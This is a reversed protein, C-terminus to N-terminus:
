TVNPFPPGKGVISFCDFLDNVAKMWKVALNTAKFVDLDTIGGQLMTLIQLALDRVTKYLDDCDNKNQTMLNDIGQMMRVVKIRFTTFDISIVSASLILIGQAVLEDLAGQPINPSGVLPRPVANQAATSEDRLDTLSRDLSSRAMQSAAPVVAVAAIALAALAAAAAVLAFPNVPGGMTQTNALALPPGTRRRQQKSLEGRYVALDFLAKDAAAKLSARQAAPLKAALVPDNLLKFASQCAADAYIAKDDDYVTSSQSGGIVSM